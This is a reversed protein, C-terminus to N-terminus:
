HFFIRMRNPVVLKRAPRRGAKFSAYAVKYDRISVIVRVKKFEPVTVTILKYSRYGLIYTYNYNIHLKLQLKSNYSHSVTVTVKVKVIKNKKM